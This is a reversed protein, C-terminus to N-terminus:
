PILWPAPLNKGMLIAKLYTSVSESSISKGAWNRIAIPDVQSELVNNIATHLSEITLDTLVEGRYPPDGKILTSAGCADTCVVPTGVTLAENVVAGWGDYRSPLVLVDARRIYDSVETNPRIGLYDAEAPIELTPDSIEGILQLRMKNWKISQFLVDTGKLKSIRGVYVISARPNVEATFTTRSIENSTVYCFPFTKTPSIGLIRAQVAAQEGIALFGTLHKNLLIRFYGQRLLRFTGKIPQQKTQLSEAMVWIQARHSKKIRTRNKKWQSTGAFGSIIHIAEAPVEMGLTSVVVGVPATIKWGSTQARQESLEQDVVLFVPAGWNEAFKELLPTQHISLNSQWFVVPQCDQSSLSETM